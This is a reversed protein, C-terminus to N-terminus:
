REKTKQYWEYLGAIYPSVKKLEKQIEDRILLSSIANGDQKNIWLTISEAILKSATEDMGAAKLISVIKTLDFDEFSGDRKVVKKM